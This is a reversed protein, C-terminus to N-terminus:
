GVFDECHPNDSNDKKKCTFFVQVCFSYPIQGLYFTFFILYLGVFDSKFAVNQGVSNYEREIFIYRIHQMFCGVAM